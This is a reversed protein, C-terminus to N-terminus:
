EVTEKLWLLREFCDRFIENGFTLGAAFIERVTTTTTHYLNIGGVWREDYIMLFTLSRLVASCV